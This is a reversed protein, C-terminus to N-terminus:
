AHVRGILPDLLMGGEDTRSDRLLNNTAIQEM